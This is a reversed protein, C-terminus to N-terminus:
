YLERKQEHAVALARRARAPFKRPMFPKAWSERLGNSSNTALALALPFCRGLSIPYRALLFPSGESM